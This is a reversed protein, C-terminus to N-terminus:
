DLSKGQMRCHELMLLATNHGLRWLFKRPLVYNDWNQSHRATMEAADRLFKAAQDANMTAMQM